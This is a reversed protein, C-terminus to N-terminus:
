KRMIIFIEMKKWIMLLKIKKMRLFIEEVNKIELIEFNNSKSLIKNKKKLFKKNNKKLFKKSNFYKEKRLFNSFNTKKREKM